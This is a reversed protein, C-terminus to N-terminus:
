QFLLFLPFRPLDKWRNPASGRGSKESSPHGGIGNYLVSFSAVMVRLELSV